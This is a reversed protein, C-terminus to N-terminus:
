MMEQIMTLMTRIIPLGALMIMVKGMLEIHNSLSSFGADKCVNSTFDCLYTIGIIKLFMKIYQENGQLFNSWAMVEKLCDEMIGFIHLAIMLSVLIIIMISYEPRDKKLIIAAILGAAVMICVQIM